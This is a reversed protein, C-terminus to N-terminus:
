EYDGLLRAVQSLGGELGPTLPEHPEALASEIIERRIAIIEDRLAHGAPTLSVLTERRDVEGRTTAVLGRDELRRILRSTSPLSQGVATSVGGVRLSEARGLVVLARWQALTLEGASARSLAMTTVGIAEFMLAEILEVIPKSM